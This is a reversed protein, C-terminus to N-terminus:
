PVPSSRSVPVNPSRPIIDQPMAFPRASEPVTRTEGSVPAVTNLYRLGNANEATISTNRGPRRGFTGATTRLLDERRTVGGRRYDGFASDMNRGVLYLPEEVGQAVPDDSIDEGVISIGYKHQRVHMMVDMASYENQNVTGTNPAIIRGRLVHIIRRARPPAPNGTAPDIGGSNVIANVIAYFGEEYYHADLEFAVGLSQFRATARNFGYVIEDVSGRYNFEETRPEWDPPEFERLQGGWSEPATVQASLAYFNTTDTADVRETTDVGFTVEAGFFVNTFAM